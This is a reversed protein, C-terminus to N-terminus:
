IINHSNKEKMDRGEGRSITIGGSPQEQLLKSTAENLTTKAGGSILKRFQIGESARRYV